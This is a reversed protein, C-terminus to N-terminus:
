NGYLRQMSVNKAAKGPRMQLKATKMHPREIDLHMGGTSPRGLHLKCKQSTGTEKRRETNEGEEERGKKRRKGNKETHREKKKSVLPGLAVARKRISGSMLIQQQNREEIYIKRGEGTETAM